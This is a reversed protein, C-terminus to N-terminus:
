LVKSLFSKTREHQPKTLVDRAARGAAEAEPTVPLDAAAFELESSSFCEM